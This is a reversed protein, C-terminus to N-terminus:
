RSQTSEMRASRPIAWVRSDTPTVGSFMGPRARAAEKSAEAPPLGMLNPGSSNSCNSVPASNPRRHAPSFAYVVGSEPFADDSQLAFQLVQIPPGQLTSLLLESQSLDPPSDTLWATSRREKLRRVVSPLLGKTRRIRPSDICSQRRCGRHPDSTFRSLSPQECLSKLSGNGSAMAFANMHDRDVVLQTRCPEPGRARCTFVDRHLFLTALLPTSRPPAGTLCGESPTLSGSKPNLLM